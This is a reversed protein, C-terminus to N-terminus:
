PAGGACVRGRGLFLGVGGDEKIEFAWSCFDGLIGGKALMM